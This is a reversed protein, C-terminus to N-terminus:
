NGIEFVARLLAAMRYEGNTNICHLAPQLSLYQWVPLSATLEMDTEQADRFLVRNMSVGINAGIRGIEHCILGGGWYCYCYSEQQPALSGQLLIGLGSKGISCLHQEGQMWLTYLFQKDPSLNGEANLIRSKGITSGICYSYHEEDAYHIQLFNLLGDERPCFRFQHNLRDDAVGNYLTEKICLRSFPQYELHLALASLPASAMAYNFSLTPHCCYSSGTFFSAYPTCFYDIDTNRIGAFVNWHKGLQQTIGFQMLRFARNAGITINSFSQLDDMVPTQLEYTALADLDLSGGKWLGANMGAEIYNSWGTKGDNLNMQMESIVSVYWSIRDASEETQPFNTETSDPEQAQTFNFPLLFLALALGIRFGQKLFSFSFM